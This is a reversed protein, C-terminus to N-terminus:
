QKTESDQNIEENIKKLVEALAKALEDPNIAHGDSSDTLPYVCSCGKSGWPSSPSGKDLEFGCKVLIDPDIIPKEDQTNAGWRFHATLVFLSQKGRDRLFRWESMAAGFFINLGSKNDHIYYGYFNTGEGDQRFKQSIKAFTYHNLSPDNEIIIGAIDRARDIVTKVGQWREKIAGAEPPVEVATLSMWPRMWERLENLLFRVILSDPESCAAELKDFVQEWTIVVFDINGAAKVLGDKNQNTALLCLTQKQFDSEKLYNAYRKLQDSDEHKRTLTSRWWPKNEILIIEQGKNDCLVLDPRDRGANIVYQTMVDSDDSNASADILSLFASRCSPFAKLLYALVETTVDEPTAYPIRSFLNTM